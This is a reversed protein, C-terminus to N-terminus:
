LLTRRRWDGPSLDDIEASTAVGVVQKGKKKEDDGEEEEDSMEVFFSGDRWLQFV